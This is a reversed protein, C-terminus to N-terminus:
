MYGQVSGLGKSSQETSAEVTLAEVDEDHSRWSRRKIKREASQITMEVDRLFPLVDDSIATWSRQKQIKRVQKEMAKMEKESIESLALVRRRVNPHMRMQHSKRRPGRNSEYEDISISDLEAYAWDISVPPGAAVDPHDGLTRLYERVEITSFSVSRDVKMIDETGIVAPCPRPYQASEICTSGSCETAVTSVGTSADVDLNAPPSKPARPVPFSLDNFVKFTPGYWWKLERPVTERSESECKAVLPASSKSTSAAAVDADVGADDKSTNMSHKTQTSYPFPVADRSPGQQSKRRRSIGNNFVKFSPCLWLPTQRNHNAMTIPIHTHTQARAYSHQVQPGICYQSLRSSVLPKDTRRLAM